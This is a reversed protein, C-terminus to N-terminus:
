ETKLTDIPNQRAAKRTQWTTIALVVIVSTLFVFIFLGAHIEIKYAFGKLWEKSAYYAVPLGIFCALLVRTFFQQNFLQMIQWETAGNVKRLAVERTKSEIMFTSFAFIGMGGILITILAFLIILKVVAIDKGYLESFNYEECKFVTNPFKERFMQQIYHYVNQYEGTQYHVIITTSIQPLEYTIIAPESYKYLPLYQFDDVVGVIKLPHESDWLNLITGLPQDLQLAKVLSRNVVTERIHHPRVLAFQKLDSPYSNKNLGRGEWLHIQYTDIYDADGIIIHAKITKEPQGNLSIPNAYEHSPLPSGNSVNLIAPHHLLKQKLTEYQFKYDPWYFYLINKQNFGLDAHQIYNMQKSVVLACFLLTSFIAIQAVVLIKKIDKYRPVSQISHKLGNHNLRRRTYLYLELGTLYMVLLILLFFGTFKQFSLHFTYPHTPSLINIIYPHLLYTLILSLFLACLAHTSIELSLQLRLTRDNAGFCKQIAMRSIDKNIQATKIMMYNGIALFLILLIIGYLLLSLSTQGQLITNSYLHNSHFYVDLLPQLQCKSEDAKLYSYNKEIIEPIKQEISPIDATSTLQLFTYSSLFDWSYLFDKSIVRSDVFIDSQISSNAPIDEMLAVIRAVRGHDEETNLDKIFVTKGIPNQHGFHQRAYKRSVVIWNLESSDIEGQIIPFDFIQFFNADVFLCQPIPIYEEKKDNKIGYSNFMLIRTFNVIDPIEEKAYPGTLYSTLSEWSKSELDQQTVRYINGANPHFKDMTWETIVHNSILLTISFAIALGVINIVTYIKNKKWNRLIIKFYQKFM